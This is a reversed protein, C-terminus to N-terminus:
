LSFQLFSNEISFHPLYKRDPIILFLIHQFHFGGMHDPRNWIFLLLFFMLGPHFVNAYRSEPYNVQFADLSFFVSKELPITATRLPLKNNEHVHLATDYQYLYFQPVPILQRLVNVQLSPHIRSDVLHQLIWLSYRIQHAECRKM